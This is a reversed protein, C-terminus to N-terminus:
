TIMTQTKMKTPSAIYLLLPFHEETVLFCFDIVQPLTKMVKMVALGSLFGELGISYLLIFTLYKTFASFLLLLRM